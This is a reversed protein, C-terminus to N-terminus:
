SILDPNEILQGKVWNKWHSKLDGTIAIPRRGADHPM